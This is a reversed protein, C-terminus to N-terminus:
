FKFNYTVSPVMRFLYTRYVSNQGNEDARFDLSYWNKRGYVNYISFVWNSENKYVKGPKKKRNLTLSLDMRHYAAMRYGNRDSYQAVQKGNVEYFGVPVTVAQGSSYVFNAGVSIRESFDYIVVATAYHRRDYKFAYWQGNNIGDAKRQSRSLTYSVWGNLKGKNKRLLLELGYSRGKGQVLQSEIPETFDLVANDIVEVTNAMDKYYVEASAELQNDMFNHFYGVAVQDARQPKLYPNSPVWFEQGTSATTNQVLHLYQFMRNYSLKISSSADLRYAMNLRPEFGAYTNYFDGQKYNLTDTINNISSVRVGPNSPDVYTPTGNSYTFERGEGVNSFVSIRAGYEINLRTSADLKHSIYYAQEFARKKPLTAETIISESTIPKISGPRFQHFTNFLGFRLTSKPTVYYTFDSKVGYDVIYNNRELNLNPSINFKLNYNYRSAILSTNVFMKSNIIKNWRVTGTTNGWGFGFISGFGLRDKGTYFSVFLRDNKGLNYNAKLNLDGFYAKSGKTQNSLPFFLDFYSRRASVMFSGEDKKIPGEITLRSSLIGIGGNATFKKNNGEKMRVDMVSALRGGFQAPTGGKYIEFDKIADGNFVSFFGIAHSPNYVVAEDLLVLNHDVNGGRVITLTNGDGAAQVGPMLQAVKIIDAEGLLLPVKKVTKVDITIASMKNESVNKDAKEGTVVVEGVEQVTEALEVNVTQNATLNIEVTKSTYGLYSYVITYKGEPLNLSYFGYENSSTGTATGQVVASSGILGEGNYADKITGSVTHRNQAYLGAAITTLMFLLLLKKM